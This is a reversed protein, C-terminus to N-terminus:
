ARLSRPCLCRTKLNCSVTTMISADFDQRQWSMTGSRLIKKKQDSAMLIDKSM